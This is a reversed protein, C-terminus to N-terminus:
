ILLIRLHCIYENNIPISGLILFLNINIKYYQIM